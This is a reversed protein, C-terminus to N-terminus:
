RPRWRPARYPARWRPAARMSLPTAVGPVARKTAGPVAGPPKPATTPPSSLTTGIRRADEFLHVVCLSDKLLLAASLAGHRAWLPAHRAQGGGSSSSGVVARGHGHSAETSSSTSGSGGGSAAGYAGAVAGSRIRGRRRRMCWIVRRTPHNPQYPHYPHRLCPRRRRPRRRSRRRPRFRQRPRSTDVYKSFTSTASCSPLPTCRATGLLVSPIAARGLEPRREYPDSTETALLLLADCVSRSMLPATNPAQVRAWSPIRAVLWEEAELEAAALSVELPAVRFYAVLAGLAAELVDTTLPPPPPVDRVTGLVEPATDLVELQLQVM